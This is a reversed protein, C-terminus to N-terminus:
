RPLQMGRWLPSAPKMEITNFVHDAVLGRFHTVSFDKTAVLKTRVRHPKGRSNKVTKYRYTQEHFFARSNLGNVRKLWYYHVVRQKFDYQVFWDGPRFRVGDLTEVGHKYHFGHDMPVVVVGGDEIYYAKGFECASSTFDPAGGQASGALVALLLGIALTRHM